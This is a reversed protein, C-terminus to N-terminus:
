FPDDASNRAPAASSRSTTEGRKYPPKPSLSLFPKGTKNSTKKWGKVDLKPTEGVKVQEVLCKVLEDDLELTGEYDPHNPSTKRENVFLAGSPGYNGAM